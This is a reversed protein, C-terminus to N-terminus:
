YILWFSSLFRDLSVKQLSKDNKFPAIHTFFEHFTQQHIKKVLLISNLCFSQQHIKCISSHYVVSAYISKFANILIGYIWPIDFINDFCIVVLITCIWIQLMLFMFKENKTNTKHDYDFWANWSYPLYIPATFSKCRRLCQLYKIPLNWSQDKINSKRYSM